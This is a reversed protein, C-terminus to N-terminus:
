FTAVYLYMSCTTFKAYPTAVHNPQLSLITEGSIIIDYYAISCLDMLGSDHVSLCIILKYVGIKMLNKIVLNGENVIIDDSSTSIDQDLPDSWIYNLSNNPATNTLLSVSGSLIIDQQIMCVGTRVVFTINLPPYQNVQLIVSDNVSAPIIYITDNPSVTLRYVYVGGDVNDNRLPNFTLTNIYPSDYNNTSSTSTFESLNKMDKRAWEGNFIVPSDVVEDLMAIGELQVVTGHVTPKDVIVATEPPLVACMLLCCTLWNSM